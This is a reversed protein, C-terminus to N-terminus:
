TTNESKKLKKEARGLSKPHNSHHNTFAAFFFVLDKKRDFPCVNFFQGEAHSQDRKAVGRSSSTRKKIMQPQAQQM